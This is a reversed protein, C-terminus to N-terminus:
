GVESVRIARERFTWLKNGIFNSILVIGTAFIQVILYQFHVIETGIFMIGSNVLLGVFAISFFKSMADIHRKKSRFTWRYNLVYNVFAGTIFGCISGIVPNVKMINVLIILVSYHCVTGIAGVGAFYFFQKAVLKAENNLLWNKLEM